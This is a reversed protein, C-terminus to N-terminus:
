LYDMFLLEKIMLFKIYNLYLKNSEKGRAELKIHMKLRDLIVVDMLLHIFTNFIM